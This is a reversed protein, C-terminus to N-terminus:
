QPLELVEDVDLVGPENGNPPLMGRSDLARGRTVAQWTAQTAAVTLGLRAAAMPNLGLRDELSLIEKELQNFRQFEPALREGGRQGDIITRDTAYLNRIDEALQAWEEYYTFLRYVSPYQAPELAAAVTGRWFVDWQFRVAENVVAAPAPPILDEPLPELEGRYEQQPIPGRVGM